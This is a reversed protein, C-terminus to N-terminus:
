SWFIGFFFPLDIACAWSGPGGEDVRSPGASNISANAATRSANRILLPNLPSITYLPVQKWGTLKRSMPQFGIGSCFFRRGLHRRL